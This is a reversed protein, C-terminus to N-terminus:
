GEFVSPFKKKFDAIMETLKDTDSQIEKALRVLEKDVDDLINKSRKFGAAVLQDEKASIKGRINALTEKSKELKNKLDEIRELDNM